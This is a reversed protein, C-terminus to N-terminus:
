YPGRDDIKNDGQQPFLFYALVGSGLTACITILLREVSPVEAYYNRLMYVSGIAVIVMVPIVFKFRKKEM